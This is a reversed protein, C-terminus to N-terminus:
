RCLLPHQPLSQPTVAYLGIQASIQKKCFAVNAVRLQFAVNDVRHLGTYYSRMQSIQERRQEAAVAKADLAPLRSVPTCGACALVLLLVAARLRLM